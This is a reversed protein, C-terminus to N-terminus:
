APPDRGRRRDIEQNYRATIEAGGAMHANGIAYLSFGNFAGQREKCLKRAVITDQLMGDFLRRGFSAAKKYAGNWM